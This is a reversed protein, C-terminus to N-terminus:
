LSEVATKAKFRASGSFVILLAAAVLVLLGGLYGKQKLM